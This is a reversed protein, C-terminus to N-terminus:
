RGLARRGATLQPLTDAYFDRRGLFHPTPRHLARHVIVEDSTFQMALSYFSSIHIAKNSSFLVVATQYRMALKKLKLIQHERLFQRGLDCGIMEFLCLSMLEQLTWLTQKIDIPAAVWLIKSLDANHQRLNWPTLESSHDNVWAAWLGRATLRAASKSWLTTAGGAESILLSLAAKPFGNSSLYTDLPTWGTSVGASPMVQAHNVLKTGLQERLRTLKDMTPGESM